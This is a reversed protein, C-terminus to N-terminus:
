LPKSKAEELSDGQSLMDIEPCRTVYVGRGELIGHCNEAREIYFCRRLYKYKDGDCNTIIHFSNSEKAWMAIEFM